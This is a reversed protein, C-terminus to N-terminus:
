HLFLIYTCYDTENGGFALEEIAELYYALIYRPDSNSVGVRLWLLYRSYVDCCGHIPFGWRALKDYGDVSWVENPGACHFIRRQLRRSRREQLGEADVIKLSEYVHDRGIWIHSHARLHHTLRRVGMLRGFHQKKSLILEDLM